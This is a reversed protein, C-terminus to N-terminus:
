ESNLGGVTAVIEKAIRQSAGPGGILKRIRDYGGIMSARCNDDAMIRILEKEIDAALNEQLLEKVVADGYILNVLSFFRFNLFLKGIRYTLHHTKYIVVQPVRFLATELTATGSTVVAAHAHSLLAYTQNMVIHIGTDELYERYIAPDVSPAGAVVFQYGAAIDKSRHKLNEAATIMEPLCAHIEQKRSGALLAVIPRDELRNSGLFEKRSPKAKGFDELQDMLPNGHYTAEMGHQKFFDVEFPLIVFMRNVFRKLQGIRGKRWAWVKPVIYYSTHFGKRHAFRAMRLNFGAYDVLIVSDPRFRKMEKRTHQMIKRLRGSHRIVDVIGMFNMERYHYIPPRGAVAQMLDGGLFHFEAFSDEERISQMLRSAHLDGSAEGAILFYKM